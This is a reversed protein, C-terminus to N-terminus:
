KCASISKTDPFAFACREATMQKLAQATAQLVEKDAPNSALLKVLGQVGNAERVAQKNIANGQVLSSICGLAGKAVFADEAGELLKVLAEIAGAGRFGSEGGESGGRRVEVETAWYAIEVYAIEVYVHMFMFMFCCV